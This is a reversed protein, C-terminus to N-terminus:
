SFVTGSREIYFQGAEDKKVNNFDLFESLIENFM